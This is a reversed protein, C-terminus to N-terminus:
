RTKAGVHGSMNSIGTGSYRVVEKVEAPLLCACPVPMCVLFATMCM